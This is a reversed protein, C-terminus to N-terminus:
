SLLHRNANYTLGVNEIQMLRSSISHTFMFRAETKYLLKDSDICAVKPLGLSVYGSEFMYLGM